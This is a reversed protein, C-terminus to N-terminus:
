FRRTCWISLLASEKLVGQVGSSPWNPRFKNHFLGSHLFMSVLRIKIYNCLVSLVWKDSCCKGKFVSEKASIVYVNLEYRVPFVNRRWQLAWDTVATLCKKKKTLVTRYVTFHETSLICLNLINFSTTTRITVVPSQLTLLVIKDVGPVQM